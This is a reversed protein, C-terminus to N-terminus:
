RLRIKCLGKNIVSSHSLWRCDFILFQHSRTKFNAFITSKL